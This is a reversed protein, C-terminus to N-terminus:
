ELSLFLTILSFEYILLLSKYTMLNSTPLLFNYLYFDSTISNNTLLRSISRRFYSTIFNSIPFWLKNTFFYSILLWFYRNSTPFLFYPRFYHFQGKFPKENHINNKTRLHCKLSINHGKHPLCYSYLKINSKKPVWTAFLDPILLLFYSILSFHSNLVWIYSTTPWLTLLQFNSIM